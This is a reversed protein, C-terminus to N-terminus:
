PEDLVRLEDIARDLSELEATLADIAQRDAGEDAMRGEQATIRLHTTDIAAEIKSLRQLYRAERAKTDSLLERLKRRAALTAEIEQRVDQRETEELQAEAERIEADLKDPEVSRAARRFAEIHRALDRAGDTLLALQSKLEPADLRRDGIAGATPRYKEEIRRVIASVDSMNPAPTRRVRGIALGGLALVIVLGLLLFLPGHSPRRWVELELDGTLSARVDSPTIILETVLRDIDVWAGVSGPRSDGDSPLRFIYRQSRADTSVLALTEPRCRV